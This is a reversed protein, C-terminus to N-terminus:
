ARVNAIEGPEPSFRSKSDQGESTTSAARLYGWIKLGEVIIRVLATGEYFGM